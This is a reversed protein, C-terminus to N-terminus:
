LAQIEVSNLRLRSVDGCESCVRSIRAYPSDKRPKLLFSNRAPGVTICLWEYVSVNSIKQLFLQATWAEGANLCQASPHLYIFERNTTLLATQPRLLDHIWTQNDRTLPVGPFHVLLRETAVGIDYGSCWCSVHNNIIHLIIQWRLQYLGCLLGSIKIWTNNVGVYVLACGFGLFTNTQKNEGNSEQGIFQSSSLQWGKIKWIVRRLTSANEYNNHSM